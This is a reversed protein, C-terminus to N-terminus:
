AIRCMAIAPKVRAMMMGDTVYPASSRVRADNAAAIANDIPDEAHSNRYTYINPVHVAGPMEPGMPDAAPNRGLSGAM